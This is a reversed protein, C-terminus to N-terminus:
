WKMYWWRYFPSGCVLSSPLLRITLTMSMCADNPCFVSAFCFNHSYKQQNVSYIVCLVFSHICQRYSCGYVNEDNKIIIPIPHLICDKHAWWFLPTQKWHHSAYINEYGDVQGRVRNARFKIYLPEVNGQGALESQNLIKWAKKKNLGGEQAEFVSSSGGKQINRNPNHQILRTCHCVHVDCSWFLQLRVLSVEIFWRILTICTMWNTYVCM